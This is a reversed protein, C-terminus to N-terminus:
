RGGSQPMSPMDTVTVELRKIRGGEIAYTDFGRVPGPFIPMICTWESRLRDGDVDLRDLTLRVGSGLPGNLSQEFFARIAARGRHSSPQGGQSFPEIYEGDEAFLSAMDEVGDPGAQMAKFYREVLRRDVSEIPTSM